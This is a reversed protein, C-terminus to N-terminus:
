VYYKKIRLCNTDNKFQEMARFVHLLLRPYLSIWYSALQDYTGITARVELTLNFYHSALNRIVRLLDVCCSWDYTRRKVSDKKIKEQLVPDLKELWSNGIVAEKNHEVAKRHKEQKLELIESACIFFDLVVEESWFVVDKWIQWKSREEWDCYRLKNVFAEQTFNLGVSNSGTNCLWLLCLLNAMYGHDEKMKEMNKENEGIMKDTKFLAKTEGNQSKTLFINVQHIDSGLYINKYHLYSLAEALSKTIKNIEVSSVTSIDVHIPKVIGLAEGNNSVAVVKDGDCIFMPLESTEIM